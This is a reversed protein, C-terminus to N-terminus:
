PLWWSDADHFVLRLGPHSTPFRMMTQEEREAMGSWISLTLGQRWSPLMSTSRCCAREEGDLVESLIQADFTAEPDFM